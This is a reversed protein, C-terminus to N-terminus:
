EAGYFGLSHWASLDFINQGRLEFWHGPYFTNRPYPSVFETFFIHLAEANKADNTIAKGSFPNVPAELLGALALTPTDANTMFQDDAHFGKSGFDKVMLLPNYAM